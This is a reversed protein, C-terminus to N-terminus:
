RHHRSMPLRRAFGLRPFRDLIGRPNPHAFPARALCYLQARCHLPQRPARLIFAVVLFVHPRLIGLKGAERAMVRQPRRFLTPPLLVTVAPSRFLTTYPFLTSRPPRRIM